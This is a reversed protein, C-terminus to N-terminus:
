MGNEREIRLIFEKQIKHHLEKRATIKHTQQYTLIDESFFLRPEIESLHNESNLRNMRATINM